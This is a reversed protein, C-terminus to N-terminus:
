RCTWVANFGILGVDVLEEYNKPYLSVTMTTFGFLNVVSM